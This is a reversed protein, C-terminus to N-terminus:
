RGKRVLWRLKQAKELAAEAALQGISTALTPYVHVLDAVDSLKLGHHIALGLEHIMEGAAPALVHAGLLRGKATVVLVEGEPTAEARGRASHALDHRWVDVDEGYRAEAQATTLGVHALEPDTFTCWPVLDPRGGKGPFFADRVARVGEAAASHTFGHRATVDGAAYISRVPTRGRDDVEVGDPGITVGLEELGLGEVNPTRGICVLVADSRVTTPEGDVAAHVVTVPGDTTVRRVDAATHLQVGERTLVDSLRRVLGPEDRPLITPAREVITAAIGLRNFAQALEVGVPGGGVISTTAPPTDLAFVDDSTLSGARALGPVDLRRPRSGTCLLVVRTPLPAHGHVSVENPGSLTAEGRVIEVGMEALRAPDDDTAAVEAQVARIRQWVESLEVVPEVPRLGFRDATRMVHAARASAILTKSPVCGTWLSTGGVRDREVAAVRLGISAAFEAAVMGASGMGMIVLDYRDTM